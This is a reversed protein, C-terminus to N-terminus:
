LRLNVLAIVGLTGMDVFAKIFGTVVILFHVLAMFRRHFASFLARLAFGTAILAVLFTICFHHFELRVRVGRSRLVFTTLSTVVGVIFTKVSSSM